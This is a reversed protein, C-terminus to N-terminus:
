EGLVQTLQQGADTDLTHKVVLKNIESENAPVTM